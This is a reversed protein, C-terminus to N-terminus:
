CNTSIQKKKYYNQINLCKQYDKKVEYKRLLRDIFDQNVPKRRPLDKEYDFLNFSAVNNLKNGCIVWWMNNINHWAIGCSLRRNYDYFYKTEGCIIKKKNKDDSNSGCNYNNNTLSEKIDNLCNIEGHVHPNDKEKKIIYEEPALENDEKGLTLGFKQCFELFKKLELKVASSQLYNLKKYRDDNQNDWFAQAIGTWLNLIHGFEVKISSPTIEMLLAVDKKFGIKHYKSLCNYHEKYSQNEKVIFGRKKLFRIISTWKNYHPVDLTFNKGCHGFYLDITNRYNRISPTM